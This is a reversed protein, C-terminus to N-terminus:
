APSIDLGYEREKPKARLVAVPPTHESAWKRVESEHKNAIKCGLIVASLREPQFAQIEGASPNTPSIVSRWESEYKWHPAKRLLVRFGIGLRKEPHLYLEIPNVEPLALEDYKVDRFIWPTREGGLNSFELCVGRHSDAYHSWMLIDDCVTTLSLVRLRALVKRATESRDAKHYEKNPGCFGDMLKKVFHHFQDKTLRSRRPEVMLRCFEKREAKTGRYIVSYRCDFPDNLKDPSAFYLENRTFISQLRGHEDVTRYKYLRPPPPPYIDDPGLLM